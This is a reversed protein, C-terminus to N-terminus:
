RLWARQLKLTAPYKGTMLSARTPSCVPCAAYADTFRIGERAMRSLNPAENFQNGYVPLDAWGMDDAMILIVNPPKNCAVLMLALAAFIPSTIKM